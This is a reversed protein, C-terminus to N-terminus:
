GPSYSKRAGAGALWGCAVISVGVSLTTVWEGIAAEGMADQYPLVYFFAMLASTLVGSAIVLRSVLITRALKAGDIEFEPVRLLEERNRHEKESVHSFRIVLEITIYSVLAGVVIPHLYIPFDVLGLQALTRAGLNTVFGTFIGWFAAPETIRKSWISMFAVPGWASAFLTGAFYTIWYINGRPVVLALALALLGVLLM